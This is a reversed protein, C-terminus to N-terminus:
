TLPEVYMHWKVLQFISLIEYSKSLTQNPPFTIKGHEKTPKHFVIKEGTSFLERSTLFLLWMEERNRVKRKREELGGGGM